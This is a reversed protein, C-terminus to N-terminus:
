KQDNNWDLKYIEVTPGLQKAAWIDILPNDLGTPFLLERNTRDSKFPSFKKILQGQKQAIQYEVYKEREFSMSRFLLVFYSPEIKKLFEYVALIDNNKYKMVDGFDLILKSNPPYNDSELSFLFQNRQSLSGNLFFKTEISEKTPTLTQISQQLLILEDSSVNEELWQSAEDRSYPRDMLQVFRAAQIFEFTLLVIVIFFIWKKYRNLNDFFNILLVGLGICLFPIISCLLRFRGGYDLFAFVISYPAVFGWWGIIAQNYFSGKVVINKRYVFYLFLFIVLLLGLALEHYFLMKSITVFGMGLSHVTFPSNFLNISVGDGSNTISVDLNFFVHPYFLFSTILFVILGIVFRSSFITKLFSIFRFSSDKRELFYNALIVFIFTFIGGYFTGVALGTSLALLLYLSWSKKKLCLLYLYFSLLIFFAVPVHPRVQQSFQISLLSFALVCTALLSGLIIKKEKFKFFIQKVTLYVLVISLIGFIAILIRSQWYFEDIHFFLYNIFEQVSSFFGFWSGLLYFIGYGFLFLYPLVYPYAIAEQLFSFDGEMIGQGLDMAERVIQTDVEGIWSKSEFPYIRLFLGVLIILVLIIFYKRNKM